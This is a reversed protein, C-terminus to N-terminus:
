VSECREERGDNSNNAGQMNCKLEKGTSIFIRFNMLSIKSALVRKVRAKNGLNLEEEEIESISQAQVLNQRMLSLCNTEWRFPRKSNQPKRILSSNSISGVSVVKLSSLRM